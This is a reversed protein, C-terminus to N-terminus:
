DLAKPFFVTVTTGAGERTDIQAGGGSDRAIGHVCALSAPLGRPGIDRESNTNAPGTGCGNGTDSFSLAVYGGPALSESRRREGSEIVLDSTEITLRGGLPMADRAHLALSLLAQEFRIRSARVLSSACSLDLTLDVDNGVIRHLVSSTESIADHLDFIGAPEAETGTLTHVRAVAQGARGLAARMADAANRIAASARHRQNVSEVLELTEALESQVERSMTVILRRRTEEDLRESRDLPLDVDAPGEQSSARMRGLFALSAAACAATVAVGLLLAWPFLAARAREDLAARPTLLGVAGELWDNYAFAGVERSGDPWVTEGTWSSEVSLAEVLDSTPPRGGRLALTSLDTGILEQRSSHYAVLGERTLVCLSTGDSWADFARWLERIRALPAAPSILPESAAERALMTAIRLRSDCQEAVMSSRSSHYAALASAAGVLASSVVIAFV